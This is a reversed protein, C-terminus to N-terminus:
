YTCMRWLYWKKEMVFADTDHMYNKRINITEFGFKKYLYIANDNNISVELIFRKNSYKNLIYELLKSGFGQHRFNDEVVIDIISIEDVLNQIHIFGILEGNLVYKYTENVGDNLDSYRYLSEFNEHLITGLLVIKNTDLETISSIM